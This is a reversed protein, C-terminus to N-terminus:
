SFSYFSNVCVCVYRRLPIKNTNSYIHDEEQGWAAGHLGDSKKTPNSSHVLELVAKVVPKAQLHIDFHTSDKLKHEFLLELQKRLEQDLYLACVCLTNTVRSISKKPQINVLCSSWLFSLSPEQSTLTITDLKTISSSWVDITLPIHDLTSGLVYM